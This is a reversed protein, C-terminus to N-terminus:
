RVSIELSFYLSVSKLSHLSVENQTFKQEFILIIYWSFNGYKIPFYTTKCSVTTVCIKLASTISITHDLSNIGKVIFLLKTKSPFLYFPIGLVMELGITQERDFLIGFDVSL